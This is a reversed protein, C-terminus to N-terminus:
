PPLIQVVAQPTKDHETLAEAEKRNTEDDTKKLYAMHKGFSMHSTGLRRDREEESM